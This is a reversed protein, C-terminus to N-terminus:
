FTTRFSGGGGVGPRERKERAFHNKKLAMKGCMGPFFSFFFNDCILTQINFHVTIWNNVKLWGISSNYNSQPHFVPIITTVKIWDYDSYILFVKFM